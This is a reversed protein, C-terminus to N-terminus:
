TNTWKKEASRLDNVLLTVDEVQGPTYTTVDRLAKLDNLAFQLHEITHFISDKVPRLRVADSKSHRMQCIEDALSGANYKKKKATEVLKQLGSSQSHESVVKALRPWEAQDFWVWLSRLVSIPVGSPLVNVRIMEAEALRAMYHNKLTTEHVGFRAAMEKVVAHLIFKSKSDTQTKILECAAVRVVELSGQRDGMTSNDRASLATLLGEDTGDAVVYAAIFVRGNAAAAYAAVRNRGCVVRYVGKSKRQVAIMPFSDGLKIARCYDAVSGTLTEAANLRTQFRNDKQDIASINVKEVSFVIGLQKMIHEVPVHPHTEFADGAINDGFVKM